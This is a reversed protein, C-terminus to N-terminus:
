MVGEGDSARVGLGAWTMDLSSQEMRTVFYYKVPVWQVYPNVWPLMTEPTRPPKKISWPSMEPLICPGSQIWQGLLQDGSQIELWGCNPRWRGPQCGDNGRLRGWAWGTGQLGKSCVIPEPM